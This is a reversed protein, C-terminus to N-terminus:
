TGLSKMEINEHEVMWARTERIIMRQSEHSHISDASNHRRYGVEVNTVCAQPEPLDQRFPPPLVVEQVPASPKLSRSYSNSGSQQQLNSCQSKNATGHGWGTNFSIVFPKLCPITAAMLSYHLLVQTCINADVGTLTPDSSFNDPNLYTLRLIALVIVILRSGFAGVVVVKGSWRMQLGWVLYISMLFMTVELIVDLGTIVQWRLFMDKSLAMLIVSTLLWCLTLGLIGSCFKKYTAERHLRDLLLTVSIKAAGHALLFLIDSAYIDREASWIQSHTLLEKSKGFGNSVAGLLVGVQAVGIVTGIGAVADDLDFPGTIAMRTYIRIFYCSVMWSMFITSAIIVLGSRDTPTIIYARHGEVDSM